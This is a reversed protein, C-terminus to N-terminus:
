PASHRSRVMQDIEYLNQAQEQQQVLPSHM